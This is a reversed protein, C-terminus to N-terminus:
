PSHRATASGALEDSAQRGGPNLSSGSAFIHLAEVRNRAKLKRLIQHVHKNITTQSVGLRNAIERNTLGWRLAALVDLERRSLPQPGTSSEGAGNGSGAAEAIRRLASVIEEPSLQKPLFGAAGAEAAAELVDDDLAASLIVVTVGPHDSVITRTAEIGDVQGALTVDMLVMDVPEAALGRYAEEATAVDWRVDIRRFGTLAQKLGLRFIPHDDVIAVRLRDDRQQM